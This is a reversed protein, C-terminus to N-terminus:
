KSLGTDLLNNGHRHLQLDIFLKFRSYLFGIQCIQEIRFIESADIFNVNPDVYFKTIKFSDKTEAYQKCELILGGTHGLLALLLEHLM